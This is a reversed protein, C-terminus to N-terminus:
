SVNIYSYTAIDTDSTILFNNALSIFKDSSKSIYSRMMYDNYNTLLDYICASFNLVDNSNM